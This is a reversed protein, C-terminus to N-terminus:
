LPRVVRFGTEQDSTIDAALDARARYSARDPGSYWGGGRLTGACGAAPRLGASGDLPADRHDQRHCDAVWEWVNGTMDHLGFGNPLYRGVEASRAQGDDCDAYPTGDVLLASQAVTKLQRDAINAMTCAASVDSWPTSRSGGGLAAREWEAESPLRYERGTIRSLWAAYAEAAHRSVGTVAASGAGPGTAASCGGLKVCWAWQEATIEFKAVAYPRALTITRPPREEARGDARGMVFTGAPVVVMEPCHSSYGALSTGPRGTVEGCDLFSRGAGLALAQEDTVAHAYRLKFLAVQL